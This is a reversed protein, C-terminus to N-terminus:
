SVGSSVCRSWSPWPGTVPNPEAGVISIGFEGKDRMRRGWYAKPDRLFQRYGDMPPEGRETWLGGPGRFPRIGSEVSIGAGTLCTVYGSDAIMRAADKIAQLTEEGLVM